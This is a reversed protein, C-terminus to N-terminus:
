FSFLVFAAVAFGLGVIQAKGMRERLLFYALLVTVIPYLSTIVTVVATNAGGRYAGFLALQGLASLVGVTLAYTLGSPSRELKFRRKALFLIGIPIGGLNFLYQMTPAPIENTGLKSLFIWPVWCAVCFASWFLWPAIWPKKTKVM